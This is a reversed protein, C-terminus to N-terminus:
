QDEGHGWNVSKSEGHVFKGDADYPMEQAQVGERDFISMLTNMRAVTLGRLTEREREEDYVKINWYEITERESGACQNGM